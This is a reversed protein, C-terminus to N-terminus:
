LLVCTAVTSVAFVISMAIILGMGYKGAAFFAPIGEVMPSSGLFLLLATRASTKHKHEHLPPETQMSATVPHATEHIHDHWHAHAAGRGHLHVQVHGELVATDSRIPAYLPDDVPEREHSHGNDHGNDHDDDHGHDRQAVQTEYAHTHGHEVTVMVNFGHPEPVDEVSEWYTGHNAFLFVQRAGYPRLTETKIADAHTGAPGM